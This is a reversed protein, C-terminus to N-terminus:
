TKTWVALVNGETDQFHFRRGGPFDFIEREIVGGASTVSELTTDLANSYLVVLPGGSSVTEAVCLGGQEEADDVGCIGCYAPGYDNFSWGFAANYFAKARVMDRVSIEIYHISHHPDPM